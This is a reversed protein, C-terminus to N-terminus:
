VVSKRDTFPKFDEPKADIGWSKLAEIGAITIAEESDVLVGDMDFIVANIM